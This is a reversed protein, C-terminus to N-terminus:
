GGGSKVLILGLFLTAQQERKEILDDDITATAYIVTQGFGIIPGLQVAISEGAALTDITGSSEHGMLITGGELRISWAVNPADISGPNKLTNKLSFLSTKFGGYSLDPLPVVNVTIPFVGSNNNTDILIEDTLVGLPVTSLDISITIEDQQGTNVGETPVVTIWPKSWSLSYYLPESGSNWIKFSTDYQKGIFRDGFDYSDPEFHLTANPTQIVNVYITFQGNGGDSIIDIVETYIGVELDTTDITVTIPDHEGTSTGSTPEVTIWQATWQLYYTLSCCSGSVWIEFVTSATDGLYIAGFDYETPAYELTAFPNQSTSKNIQQSLGLPTILLSITAILLMISKKSNKKGNM